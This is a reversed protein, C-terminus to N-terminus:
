HFGILITCIIYEIQKQTILITGNFVFLSLFLQYIFHQSSLVLFLGLKLLHMLKLVYFFASLSLCNICIKAFIFYLFNFSLWRSRYVQFVAVLTTHHIFHFSLSSRIM